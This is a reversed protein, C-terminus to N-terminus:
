RPGVNCVLVLHGAGVPTCDELVAPYVDDDRVRAEGGAGGDLLRADLHPVLVVRYERFAVEEYRALGEADHLLLVNASADDEHGGLVSHRCALVGARVGRRLRGLQMQRPAQGLFSPGLADPGVSDVRVRHQLPGPDPARAPALLAGTGVAYLRVLEFVVVTLAVHEFDVHKGLVDGLGHEVEGGLSTGRPARAVDEVDVAAHFVGVRPLGFPPLTSPFLPTRRAFTPTKPM